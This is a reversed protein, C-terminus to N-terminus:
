KCITIDAYCCALLLERNNIDAKQDDADFGLSVIYKKLKEATTKRTDFTITITKQEPNIDVAKVGKEFYINRGLGYKCKQCVRSTSFSCKKLNDANGRTSLAIVLASLFVQRNM